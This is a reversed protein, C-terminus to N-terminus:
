PVLLRHGAHPEWLQYFKLNGNRFDELLHIYLWHDWFPTNVWYRSILFALLSPPGIIGIILMLFKLVPIIGFPSRHTLHGSGESSTPEETRNLNSSYGSFPFCISRCSHWDNQLKFRYVWKKFSM